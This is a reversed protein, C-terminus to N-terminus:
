NGNIKVDTSLYNEVDEQVCIANEIKSFKFFFQECLILDM